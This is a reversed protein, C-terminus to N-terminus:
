GVNRPVMCHFGVHITQTPNFAGQALLLSQATVQIGQSPDIVIERVPFVTQDGNGLLTSALIPGDPTINEINTYAFQLAFCDRNGPTYTQRRDLTSESDAAANYYQDLVVRTQIFSSATIGLIVAGAPFTRLQVGTTAGPAVGNFALNFVRPSLAKQNKVLWPIDVRNRLRLWAREWSVM